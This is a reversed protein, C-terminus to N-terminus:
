SPMEVGVDSWNFIDSKSFNYAKFLMIIGNFLASVPFNMDTVVPAAVSFAAPELQM